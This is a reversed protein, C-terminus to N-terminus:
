LTFRLSLHHYVAVPEGGRTAPRFKWRRVADVAAETLGHPLGHLVEVAVVDGHEDITARMVVDGRIGAAWAENTYDPLPTVLRVPPAVDGGVPLPEPRSEPEPASAEPLTTAPETGRSPSPPLRRVVPPPPPPPETAASTAPPEGEPEPAVAERGPIEPPRIAARRVATVTEIRSRPRRARPKREPPPEPEALLEEWWPETESAVTTDEGSSERPEPTSPPSPLDVTAIDSRDTPPPAPRESPSLSMVVAVVALALLAAVFPLARRRAPPPRRGAVPHPPAATSPTGDDSAIEPYKEKLLDFYSPRGPPVDGPRRQRPPPQGPPPKRRM